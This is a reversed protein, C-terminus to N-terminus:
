TSSACRARRSRSLEAPEAAPPRRCVHRVHLRRDRRRREPEVARHPRQQRRGHRGTALYWENSPGNACTAVSEGEPNSALQEVLGGGGDIEVFAAAYPSDVLADLDFEQVATRTSTAGAPEGPRGDVTLVTLRGGMEADGTNFVRVVGGAGDEGAAPVGPCFWTSTLGGPLPAAPMWPTAVNSFVAQTPEVTTRATLVLAVVAAISLVLMPIRRAIMTTTRTTTPSCTTSGRRPPSADDGFLADDDPARVDEARRVAPGGVDTREAPPGTFELPVLVPVEGAETPLAAHDDDLDLVTARRFEARADARPRAVVPGVAPERRAARAGM